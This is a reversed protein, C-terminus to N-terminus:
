EGALLRLLGEEDLVPVGLKRAKELKSGAEEGAVVYHTKKSVSGSVKGGAAEIKETAQERGLTPLTGTLVFTKGAAPSDAANEAPPTPALGARQLDAVLERNTGDDFWARVAQATIEGFDALRVLDPLPAAALADLSRFSRALTKAATAGVQPIGLGHIVRWLDATRRADIANILNNAWTEGSKKLPLLDEVKLRFLDPITTILKKELLLDVIERGLGDIDLCAKSAFHAVRRRVKEPCHPNPCRWAVGGEVRVVPTGCAPCKEPFCYPECSPIRKDMVVGIVAPIIEGAKEILVTDGIRVDKRAIEDANHLTARKVTTGALLVPDLEAVPTLVGTRGVQITIANIRTEARDPPFKFACAWRPSLKRAEQARGAADTGRYGLIKQQAFLDLKVVAGDTAYAFGRRLRDLEAIAERVAEIGRVSWTKEVTPLGWAALQRQFGTQSDFGWGPTPPAATALAALAQEPAPECAGLGYLVIELRRSAVVSSDLLKLTGAALNRPNAYAAEGAEEQQQNIRRFEEERLFIEGRIEILDPFPAVPVPAAPTSAPAPAAALSFLDDEPGPGAPAPPSPPAVVPPAARLTHPLGRLTRVNATVDDGESGDGRTVARTLKGHEYTLSVAAGDIKPEVICALRANDADAADNEARAEGTGADIAGAAALTKLLRAYFERLEGDDYTNDLTMMAQRHRVRAFGEARDDGIRRTPSEGTALEPHQAELDALERKLRDYDFDSLEPRAARYYLEDHRALEARLAAIRAAPSNEPSASM